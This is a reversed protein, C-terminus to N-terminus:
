ASAYQVPIRRESREVWVIFRGRRMFVLGAMLIPDVRWLATKPRDILGSGARCDWSSALLDTAVHRQGRRARSRSALWMIFAQGHSTLMTMLIIRGQNIVFDRRRWAV